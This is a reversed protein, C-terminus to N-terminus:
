YKRWGHRRVVAPQSVIEGPKGVQTVCEARCAWINLSLHEIGEAQAQFVVAGASSRSHASCYVVRQGINQRARSLQRGRNARATM